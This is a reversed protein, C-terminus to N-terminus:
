YHPISQPCQLRKEAQISLVVHRSNMPDRSLPCSTNLPCMYKIGEKIILSESLVKFSYPQLLFRAHKQAEWANAKQNRAVLFPCEVWAPTERLGAASRYSKCSLPLVCLCLQQEEQLRLQGPKGEGPLLLYCQGWLTFSQLLQPPHLVGPNAKRGKGM